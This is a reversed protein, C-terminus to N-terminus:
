MPILSWYYISLFQSSRDSATLIRYKARDTMPLIFTRNFQLSHKVIPTEIQSNYIEIAGNGQTRNQQSLCVILNFKFILPLKPHILVDSQSEIQGGPLLEHIGAGHYHPDGLLSNRPRDLVLSLAYVFDKSNLWFYVTRGFKSLQKVPITKIQVNEQNQNRFIENSNCDFEKLILTLIESEFLDDIVLHPYPQNQQYIQQLSDFRNILLNRSYNFRNM